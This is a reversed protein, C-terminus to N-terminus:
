QSVHGCNRMPSVVAAGSTEPVKQICSFMRAYFPLKMVVARAEIRNWHQSCVPLVGVVKIQKADSISPRHTREGVDILFAEGGASEMCEWVHQFEIRQGSI